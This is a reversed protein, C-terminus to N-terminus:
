GGDTIPESHDAQHTINGVFFHSYFGDDWFPISLLWIHSQTLVMGMYVSGNRTMSIVWLWSELWGPEHTHGCHAVSVPQGDDVKSTGLGQFRSCVTLLRVWLAGPGHHGPQRM